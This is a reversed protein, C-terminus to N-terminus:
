AQACEHMRVQEQIIKKLPEVWKAIAADPCPAVDSDLFTTVRALLKPSEEFDYFCEKLWRRLANVVRHVPPGSGAWAGTLALCARVCV